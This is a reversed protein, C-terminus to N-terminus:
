GLLLSTKDHDPCESRSNDDCRREGCGSQCKCLVVIGNGASLHLGFQDLEFARAIVRGAVLGVIGIRDQRSFLFDGRLVFRCLASIAWRGHPRRRGARRDARYRREIRVRHIVVTRLVTIDHICNLQSAPGAEIAQAWRLCGMPPIRGHPTQKAFRGDECLVPGPVYFAPMGICGFVPTEMVRWEVGACSASKELYSSMLSAGWSQTGFLGRKGTM